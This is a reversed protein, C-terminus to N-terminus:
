YFALYFISIKHKVLLKKLYTPIPKTEEDNVKTEADVDTIENCIIVLNDIISALYKGNKCSRTAFNWIYDKECIHHRKCDCQCKHNNWWQNSNCKKENFKYKCECSVHKALIKLENIGTIM